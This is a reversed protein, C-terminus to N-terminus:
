DAPKRSAHLAARYGFVMAPGLIVGGAPCYGRMVSAMDNGCAYLAGIPRDQQDLVQADADTKLGTSVSLTAPTIPLAYFPAKAIPALNPNPKVTPDGNFHNFATTGKGFEEDVGTLAYGNHRDVTAVLGDPDVGIKGALERLTQGECVYGQQIYRHLKVDRPRIIGFGYRRMFDSDCVLHGRPVEGAERAQSFMAQVVDHYSNAENVFRRGSQNVAIAGPKGRDLYGYPFVTTTGDKEHMVSAPTWVAPSSVNRDVLGGAALAARLGDGTAGQHAVTHRHPFNKMLDQQLASAQAAGGTALVVGCRARVRWEGAATQLLAGRVQGGQLILEVLSTNVRLDASLQRLSYFLRAILANGNFLRTGRHFRLRDSAHRALNRVTTTFARLSKFPQIMLPVESVPVMMGGLVMLRRLPSGLLKFDAGLKRGDFPKATLVRGAAMGGPQDPHYDPMGVSDFVVSSRQELLDVMAPGSAIFASILDQRAHEELEHRLYHEGSEPSDHYGARAAQSSAPIWIAGGSTASTGGFQPTKEAVIVALGQLAGVLAATLGGAGSGIVLLDTQEDWDHEADKM